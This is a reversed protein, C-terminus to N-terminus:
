HAGFSNIIVGIAGVVVGLSVARFGGKAPAKLAHPVLHFILVYALAGAAGGLLATMPIVEATELLSSAGLTGLVTTGGAAFFALLTATGRRMGTEILLFFAIVGEPFEHFLLGGVALWGTFTENQFAAAYIFGDLSSHAALAIISAYGFTLAAGDARRNVATEVSIGILVMLAFGGAVWGLANFSINLAELLLHFLVSVTLLGVAFASIYASNRQAEAGFAAISLVGALSIAAAVLSAGLGPIAQLEGFM